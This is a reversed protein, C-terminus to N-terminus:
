NIMGQNEKDSFMKRFAAFKNQLATPTKVGLYTDEPSKKVM